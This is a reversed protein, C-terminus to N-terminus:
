ENIYGMAKLKEIVRSEPVEGSLRNLTSKEKGNEIFITTPTGSINAINKLYTYDEDSLNTQSVEYFNINYKSGIKNLVPIFAHCHSCSDQTIVLIFSDQKDIKEKLDAISLKTVNKNTENKKLVIFSVIAIILLLVVIIIGIKGKKM